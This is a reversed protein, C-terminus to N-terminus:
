RFHLDTAHIAANDARGASNQGNELIEINSNAAFTEGYKVRPVLRGSRVYCGRGAVRLCESVRPITFQPAKM